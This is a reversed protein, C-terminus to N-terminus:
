TIKFLQYRSVHEIQYKVTNIESKILDLESYINIVVGGFRSIIFETAVTLLENFNINLKDCINLTKDISSSLKDVSKNLINIM